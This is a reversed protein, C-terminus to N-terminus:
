FQAKCCCRVRTRRDRDNGGEGTMRCVRRVAPHLQAIELTTRNVSDMNIHITIYM